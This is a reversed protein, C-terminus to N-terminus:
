IARHTSPQPPPPATWRDELVPMQFMQEELSVVVSKESRQSLGNGIMNRFLQKISFLDGFRM